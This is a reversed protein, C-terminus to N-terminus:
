RQISAGRSRRDAVLGALDIRLPQPGQMSMSSWFCASSASRRALSAASAALRALLSNRALTLWSIRVGIFAMRPMVSSAMSVEPESSCLCYKVITLDEASARSLTILSRSSKELISAPLSSSSEAPNESRPTRPSVSRM